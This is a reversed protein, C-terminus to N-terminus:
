SKIIDVPQIAVAKQSPYIGALIGTAVSATFSFILGIASIFFPLGSVAFIIISVTIGFALGCIGGCLSIISSEFIFQLIIDKKKSGVARRIGIEIKRENVILIMISLIGIGGVIFSVAASTRGLVTIMNITQTKLEMVDKLDIITFDNEKNSTLHHQERLIREMESKAFPISAENVAQAYITDLYTKNVFKKLFTNLPIFIQNDLDTGSIDSGKEEMIGVVLCPVRYILLYKGVPNENEFLEDAIKSGIVAINKQNIHDSETIFRGKQHFHHRTKSYNSTVGVILTPPLVKEKYRIPFIKSSSPSIEKIFISSEAIVSADYLTLNSADSLLTSRRDFRTVIGPKIILLNEGLKNIEMTTKRSFSGSFNSVVILSFTGLFVGLLAILSRVKFNFLSRLAITLNLYIRKM